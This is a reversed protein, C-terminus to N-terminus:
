VRWVQRDYNYGKMNAKNKEFIVIQSFGYWKYVKTMYITTLGYNNRNMLELRRLTFNNQGILYSIIRPKLAISKKLVDDIMSYPPNSCIIDVQKNFKFFDKGDLIESWLKLNTPFQDFYSGNNKFPDYWIDNPNVPILDIHIKALQRPTIFIDNAVKRKKIKTSIQSTM